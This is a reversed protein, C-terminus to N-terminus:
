FARRLTDASVRRRIDELTHINVAFRWERSGSAEVIHAQQLVAMWRRAVASPVKFRADPNRLLRHCFALFRGYDDVYWCGQLRAAIEEGLAWMQALNTGVAHRLRELHERWSPRCVPLQGRARIIETLRGYREVWTCRFFRVQGQTDTARFSVHGIGLWRALPPSYSEVDRASCLHIVQRSRFLVGQRLILRGDATATCTRCWWRLTQGTAWIVPGLLALGLAVQEGQLGLWHYAWAITGVIGLALGWKATMTLWSRRFTEYLKPNM